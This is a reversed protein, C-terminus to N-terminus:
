KHRHQYSSLRRRAIVPAPHFHSGVGGGSVRLGAMPAVQLLAQVGDGAPDHGAALPHGTQATQRAPRGLLNEAEIQDCLSAGRRQDQAARWASQPDGLGGDAQLDLRAQDGGGAGGARGHRRHGIHQGLFVAEAVAEDHAEDLALGQAPSDDLAGVHGGCQRALMWVM